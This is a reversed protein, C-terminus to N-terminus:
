IPMNRAKLVCISEYPSMFVWLSKLPRILVYLSGYPGM